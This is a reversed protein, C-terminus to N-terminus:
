NDLNEFQALLDVYSWNNKQLFKKQLRWDGKAILEIKFDQFNLEFTIVSTQNGTNPNEFYSEEVEECWYEKLTELMKEIWIIEWNVNSINKMVNIISM